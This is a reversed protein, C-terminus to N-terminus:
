MLINVGTTVVPLTLKDDTGSSHPIASTPIVCGARASLIHAVVTRDNWQDSRPEVGCLLQHVLAATWDVKLFLCSVHM